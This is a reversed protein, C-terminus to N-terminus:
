DRIGADCVCGSIVSYLSSSWQHKFWNWQMFRFTFILLDVNSRFSTWISYLQGKFGSVGFNPHHWYSFSRCSSVNVSVCVGWSDAPWCLLLEHTPASATVPSKDQSSITVSRAAIRVSCCLSLSNIYIHTNCLLNTPASIQLKLSLVSQYNGTDLVVADICVAVRKYLSVLLVLVNLQESSLTNKTTTFSVSSSESTWTTKLQTQGTWCTLVDELRIVGVVVRTFM